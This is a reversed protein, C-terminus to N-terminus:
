LPNRISLKNLMKVLYKITLFDKGILDKKPDIEFVKQFFNGLRFNEDMKLAIKKSRNKIDKLIEQISIGFFPTQGTLLEFFVCGISWIDLKSDYFNKSNDYFDHTLIEPASYLPTGVQTSAM